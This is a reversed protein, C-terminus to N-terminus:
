RQGHRDGTPVNLLRQANLSYIKRAVEEPLKLDEISRIGERIFMPGGEPDMPCDSAFVVRDPGFFDLGCRLPAAAGGLVTDGFFM